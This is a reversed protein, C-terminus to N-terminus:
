RINRFAVEFQEEVSQRDTSNMQFLVEQFLDGREYIEQSTESTTLLATLSKFLDVQEKLNDVMPDTNEEGMTGDVFEHDIPAKEPGHLDLPSIIAELEHLLKGVSLLRSEIFNILRRTREHFSAESESFTQDLAFEILFERHLELPLANLLEYYTTRALFPEAKLIASVDPNSLTRYGLNFHLYPKEQNRIATLSYRFLDVEVPPDLPVWRDIVVKHSQSGEDETAPRDEMRRVTAHHTFTGLGLDRRMLLLDDNPRIRPKRRSKIIFTSSQDDVQISPADGRIMWHTLLTDRKM